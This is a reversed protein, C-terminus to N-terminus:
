AEDSGKRARLARDIRRQERGQERLEDKGPRWWGRSEILDAPEPERAPRARYIEQLSPRRWRAWVYREVADKLHPYFAGLTTDAVPEADIEEFVVIGWPRTAVPEGLPPLDDGPVPYRHRRRELQVARGSESRGLEARRARRAEPENRQAADEIVPWQALLHEYSRFPVRWVKARPDWRAWPIRRMTEVVTRSYPTRVALDEGVILYPSDLGEFAFADRGKDDAHRDLTELEQSMWLDLRRVATTGPVFWCEEDARWRARPFAERFRRVLDRDYPFAAFAGPREGDSPTVRFGSALEM